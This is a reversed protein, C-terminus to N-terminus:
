RTAGQLAHLMPRFKIETEQWEKQPDSDAMIGAGAYLRTESEASVASRIAVAFVGNGQGDIWGVPGAYWGRSTPELDAILQLATEQPIGGVAPTPHLAAVVDLLDHGDALRGGIPTYLHQIYPLRHLTPQAPLNLSHAVGALSERMGRVVLAHEHREKPNEMLAQGFAADEEATGGRPTSGALAAMKLTSGSVAVLLEPTAGYFAHGPRPEILFRYCDPYSAGLRELVDPLDPPQSFRIHCSRALVVKDLDGARIRRTAESVIREWGPFKIPSDVVPSPQGPHHNEAHTSNGLRARLDAAKRRVQDVAQEIEQHPKLPQNVTLWSQGEIRTLQYHPLSFATPSFASWVEDPRFDPDFACGGFLRPEVASPLGRDMRVIRQFLEKAQERIAAFRDPGHAELAIVTGAGAFALPESKCEWYSHRADPFHRLFDTLGFAAPCSISHSLIPASGLSESSLKTQESPESIVDDPLSIIM